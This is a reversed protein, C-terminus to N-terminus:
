DISRHSPPIRKRYHFPKPDLARPWALPPPPPPPPLSAILLRSPYLTLPSADNTFRTHGLDASHPSAGKENPAQGRSAAAKSPILCTEAHWPQSPSFDLSNSCGGPFHSAHFTLPMSSTPHLTLPSPHHLPFRSLCRRLRRLRDGVPLSDSFQLSSHESRGQRSSSRGRLDHQETYLKKIPSCAPLFVRDYRVPM